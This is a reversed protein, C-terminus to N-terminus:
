QNKIIKFSKIEQKNRTIKLIYSGNILSRLDILTNKVQITKSELLQAHMNFLQYNLNSLDDLDVELSVFYDTPNPFAKINLNIGDEHTGTIIYFEFPQQLGQNINGSTSSASIYDIQGISYSVSGSSSNADGGTTLTNSQATVNPRLCFIPILIGLGFKFLKM